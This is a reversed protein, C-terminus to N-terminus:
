RSGSRNLVFVSNTLSGVSYSGNTPTITATVPTAGRTSPRWTCTATINPSSGSTSRKVCNSIKVGKARFLVTGVVSVSVTITVASRFVPTTSFSMSNVSGILRGDIVSASSASIALHTITILLGAVDKFSGGNTDLTNANIAVGDADYDSSGPVYIFTTSTSDSGASYTLFKSTLGQIPIRPTGVVTVIESWNITVTLTEGFTYVSDAGASSTIGISSITGASKTFKLYIVGDSGSGGAKQAASYNANWGGGGGGSGTSATGATAFGGSSKTAQDVGGNGGVSSGGLAGFGDSQSAPAVNNSPTGGGGGGAAFFTVLNTIASNQVGIGGAGGVGGQGGIDTGATGAGGAGGGGGGGDWVNVGGANGGGAAGGDGSLNDQNSLNPSGQGGVGGVASLLSGSVTLISSTGGTGGTTNSAGGLGGGGVNLTLSGNSTISVSTASIVQGGGGGGGGGLSGTHNAGGGGGGGGVVFYDYTTVGAPFSFLCQNATSVRAYQTSGSSSIVFSCFNSEARFNQWVETASIARNYMSIQGIGSDFYGDVGWNSRGIFNSTRTVNTPLAAYAVTAILLGNKYIRCNTGDISVGYHAWTNNSIASSAACQGFSGGSGNYLEFALNDTTGSRAVLINNAGTGTGFDFIREWGQTASGFNAYFTTSFGNSFNTALNGFSVHDNVGDLGIFGGNNASYTAGNVLTGNFGNGSIDTWANPASGNYSASNGADLHLILGNTSIAARAVPAIAILGAIMMSLSLGVSTLKKV